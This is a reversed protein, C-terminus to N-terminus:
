AICFTYMAAVTKKNQNICAKGGGKGVALMVTPFHM